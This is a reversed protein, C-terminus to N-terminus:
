ALMARLNKKWKQPPQGRWLTWDRIKQLGVSFGAIRKVIELRCTKRFIRGEM